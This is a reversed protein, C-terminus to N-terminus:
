RGVHTMLECLSILQLQGVSTRAGVILSVVASGIVDCIALSTLYTYLTTQLSRELMLVVCTVVNIGVATAAMCALCPWWAASSPVPHRWLYTVATPTANDSSTMNEEAVLSMTETDCIFRYVRFLCDM